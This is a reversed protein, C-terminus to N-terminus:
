FSKSLVVTFDSRRESEATAVTKAYQNWSAYSLGISTQKSLAYDATLGYGSVTQDPYATTASTVNSFAIYSSTQRQVVNAGLKLAGMPVGISMATDTRTGGGVNSLQNYAAGVKVAGLDYTGAVRVRNDMSGVTNKSDYMAYRVSLAVPGSTYNIRYQSQRQATVASSGQSGAGIGELAAESIDYQFLISPTIQYSWIFVDTAGGVREAYMKGAMDAGGANGTSRTMFDASESTDLQFTGLNATAVTLNADGGTMVGRNMGEAATQGTEGGLGLTATVKTGGGLDESAQFRITSSAIGLGSTDSSATGNNLAANHVAKYGMALNGTIAVQAMSAGSVALVAMAVLTKKM